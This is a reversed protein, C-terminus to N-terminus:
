IINCLKLLLYFSEILSNAWIEDFCHNELKLSLVHFIFKLLFIVSNMLHCNMKLFWHIFPTQVSIKSDLLHFLFVEHSKWSFELRLSFIYDFEHLLTLDTWLFLLRSMNRLHNQVFISILLFNLFKHIIQYRKYFSFTINDINNKMISKSWARVRSFVNLICFCICKLQHSIKIIILHKLNILNLLMDSHNWWIRM